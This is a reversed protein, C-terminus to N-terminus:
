KLNISTSQGLIAQGNTNQFIVVVHGAQGVMSAPYDFGFTSGDGSIQFNPVLGGDAGNQLAQQQTNVVTEKGSGIWELESLSYGKPASLISFTFLSGVTGPAENVVIQPSPENQAMLNVTDQPCFVSVHDLHPNANSSTADPFVWLLQFMPGAPYLLISDGAYHRTAGPAGLVQTVESLTITQLQPAYSRVDFIQGGKNFGFATQRSSYTAYIGAGAVDQHTAAGWKQTVTDINTTNAAYPVYPLKGGYALQMSERIMQVAAAEAVSGGATTQNSVASNTPNTTPASTNTANSVTPSGTVHVASNTNNSAASSCGALLFATGFVSAYVVSKIKM